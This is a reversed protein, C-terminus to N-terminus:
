VIRVLKDIGMIQKGLMNRRLAEIDLDSDHAIHRVKINKETIINRINNGIIKVSEPIETKSM